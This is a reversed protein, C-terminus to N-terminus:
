NFNYKLYILYRKIVSTENCVCLYMFRKKYIYNKSSTKKRIMQISLLRFCLVFCHYAGCSQVKTVLVIACTLNISQRYYM